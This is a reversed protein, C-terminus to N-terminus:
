QVASDMNVDWITGGDMLTMGKFHTPPFVGPISSSAVAVTGIDKFDINDQNFIVYEGTAVNASAISFRRKFETYGKM